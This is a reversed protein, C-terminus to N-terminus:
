LSRQGSPTTSENGRSACSFLHSGRCQQIRHRLRVFSDNRAKWPADRWGYPASVPPCVESTESVESTQDGGLKQTASPSAIGLGCTPSQKTLRCSHPRLDARRLSADASRGVLELPSSTEEGILPTPGWAFSAIVCASCNCSYIAWLFPTTNYSSILQDLNPVPYCIMLALL